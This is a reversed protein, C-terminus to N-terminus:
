ENPLNYERFFEELDSKWDPIKFYHNVCKPSTDLLSYKPRQAMNPTLITQTPVVLKNDLNALTLIDLALEFRSVFDKSSFHYVGHAVDSNLLFCIFYSLSQTHTPQGFQDDVVEFPENKIGKSIIAQVFKAGNKGYLWATRVIISGEPYEKQIGIEGSLKSKAYVSLPNTHGFVPNMVPTSTSFVADTSLHILGIGRQKCYKALQTPGIANILYAADVETEALDVQTFAACNIILDPEVQNLHTKSREFYLFNFLNRDLPFVEHGYSPLDHLLVRGLQGSVGTIAIRM